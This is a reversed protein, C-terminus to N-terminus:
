NKKFDAETRVDKVSKKEVIENQALRRYLRELFRRKCKKESLADFIQRSHNVGDEEVKFVNAYDYPPVFEVQPRIHNDYVFPDEQFRSFALEIWESVRHNTLKQTVQWYYESKMRAFPHRVITFISDFESFHFIEQLVAAHLHQLSAKCYHIDNLSKGRISFIESWGLQTALKEISSGGAKPVHIFLISKDKKAFVPM